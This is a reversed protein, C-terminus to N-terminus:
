IGAHKELWKAVGDEENSGTVEDAAAKVEDLANEVAVGCGLAKLMEIDALDDGFSVAEKKNVNLLRLATLVGQLKTADRHIFMGLKGEAIELYADEPVIPRLIEADEATWLSVLVKYAPEDPVTDINVMPAPPGDWVASTDFNAYLGSTVELSWPRGPLLRDIQRILANAKGAEMSVSRMERGNMRLSAGNMSVTADPRIMEEYVGIARPPRATAIISYIGKERCRELVAKTYSSITKDSRLLTRDLDFVMARIKM